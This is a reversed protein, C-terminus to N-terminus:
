AQAESWFVAHRNQTETPHANIRNTAIQLQIDLFDFRPSLTSKVYGELLQFLLEKRVAQKGLLALSRQREQWSGDPNYGRIAASSQAIHQADDIVAVGVPPNYNPRHFDLTVAGRSFNGTTNVIEILQAGDIDNDDAAAASGQLIQPSEVFFDDRPRNESRVNRHNRCHPVLDIEGYRIKDCITTSGCGSSGCFHDNRTFEIQTLLKVDDPELEAPAYIQNQCRRPFAKTTQHFSQGIRATLHAVM